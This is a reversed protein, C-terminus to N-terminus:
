GPLLRALEGGDLWLGRCRPCVDVVIERDRASRVRLLADGDRPCRGPKADLSAAGPGRALRKLEAPKVLLLRALEQEDFWVGRCAPCQDVEIGRVRAPQLPTDPCKPCNM